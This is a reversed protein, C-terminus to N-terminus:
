YYSIHDPVRCCLVSVEHVCQIQADTDANTVAETVANTVLTPVAPRLIKTETVIGCIGQRGVM